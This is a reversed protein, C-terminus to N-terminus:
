SFFAYDGKTDGMWGIVSGYCGHQTDRKDACEATALLCAGVIM